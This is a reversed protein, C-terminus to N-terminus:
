KEEAAEKGKEAKISNFLPAQEPNHAPKRSHKCGTSGEVWAVLVERHWCYPKKVKKFNTHENSYSRLIM